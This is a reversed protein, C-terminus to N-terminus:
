NTPPAKKAARQPRLASMDLEIKAGQMKEFKAKQEPTLVALIKELTEKRSEQMKKMMEARQETTMDRAGQRAEQMKAQAEQQVTQIKGRQEDTLELAKAVEPSALAVPGQLQLRIQKVRELQEPTLIEAAQKEVDARNDRTPPPLAKLKEKQDSTLKLDAAVKEVQVLRTLPIMMMGGRMGGGGGPAPQAQASLAALMAATVAMAFVMPLRTM